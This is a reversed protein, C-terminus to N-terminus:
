KRKRCTVTAKDYTNNHLLLIRATIYQNYAETEPNKDEEPVVAEQEFPLYVDNLQDEKMHSTELIDESSLRNKFHDNISFDFAQLKLHFADSAM